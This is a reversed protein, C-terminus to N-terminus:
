TIGPCVTILPEKSDVHEKHCKMRCDLLFHFVYDDCRVIM